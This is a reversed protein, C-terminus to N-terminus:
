GRKKGSKMGWITDWFSKGLLPSFVTPEKEVTKRASEGKVSRMHRAHKRKANKMRIADRREMIGGYTRCACKGCYGCNKREYERYRQIIDFFPRGFMKEAWLTLEYLCFYSSNALLGWIWWRVM